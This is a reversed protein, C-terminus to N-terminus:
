ADAGLLHRIVYVTVGAVSMFVVTATLSRPSVRGIGCVGHGSTCGKGLRTGVGVIFGAILMTPMDADLHITLSEPPAFHLWAGAGAILGVTFALRWLFDTGRSIVLNGVIGSIGAIRGNFALMLLASIGILIGGLLAPVPTFETVSYM